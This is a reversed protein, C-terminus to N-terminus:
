RWLVGAAVLAGRAEAVGSVQVARLGAAEAADVNVANDDLFLVRGPDGGLRRVVHTFVDTDPKLMGMEFSLFRHDFLGLLPWTAIGAQWHVANTNSLCAVPLRSRVEEVLRDAGALPGVVWATFEALYREPSVSLAWDSVVGAAFADASCLGREFRRVWPCTLWRRWLEDDSEIGSLRRMSEIGGLEVLVGGLDFVVVDYGPPGM